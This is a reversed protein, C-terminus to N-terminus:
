TSGYTGTTRPTSLFHHPGANAPYFHSPPSNLLILDSCPVFCLRTGYFTSIGLAPRTSNTGNFSILSPTYGVKQSTDLVTQRYLRSFFDPVSEAATNASTAGHKYIQLNGLQLWEVLSHIWLSQRPQQRRFDMDPHRLPPSTLATALSSPNGHTARIARELLGEMATNTSKDGLLGRHMMALKDTHAQTSFLPLGIGGNARTTYLLDHPFTRPLQLIRRFAISFLKDIAHFDQLRWGALKAPYRAKPYLSYIIAEIKLEKDCGKTHLTSLRRNLMTVLHSHSSNDDNSYDFLVGLYKLAESTSSSAQTSLPVLQVDEELWGYTHVRLSDHTPLQPNEQGWEVKCARLKAIAIDLGFIIAFASVTDAKRQLGSLTTTVSVLDDAYGTDRTPIVMGKARVLPRDDMDTDLACLLIDFFAIWNLPSGVDGQGTGVEAMFSPTHKCRQTDFTSLGRRRFRRETYPNRIVTTGHTDLGVMYEAVDDPIGLRTWSLKLINKPVRDFARKIDWSSLFYDTKCEETEEM